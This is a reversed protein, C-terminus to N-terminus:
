DRSRISHPDLVSRNRGSEKAQYLARDALRVLDDPGAIRLNVPYTAIGQSSTVTAPSGGLDFLHSEMSQRIREALKFAPPGATAPLLIVFEDGGYRAVLDTERTSRTLIHGFERLVEDGSLHGFQDNIAKYHDLDLMM